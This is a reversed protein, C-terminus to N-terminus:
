WTKKEHQRNGRKQNERYMKNRLLGAPDDPVKELWVELAQDKEMQDRQDESIEVEEQVQESTKQDQMQQQQNQQESDNQQDQQNQQQNQDSESQEDQKSDNQQDSKQQDSNEQNQNDKNQNEQNQQQKLLDEIINKNYLGDQHDPQKNLLQNYLNLAEELKNMKALSTAHNYLSEISEHPDFLDSAAQYNNNKYHASAQWDKNEFLAAAKDYQQNDFAKEAQQNKTFWLDDWVSAEVHGSILSGSLLLSVPLLVSSLAVQANQRLIKLLLLLLILWILWYGDDIFYNIARNDETKGETNLQAESYRQLYELDSNDSTLTVLGANLQNAIQQLNEIELKPIIIVGNRDKLFGLNDPLNIPAGHKTGIALISLKYGSKKVLDVIPSVYQQDVGDTMWIIQGNNQMANKLLDIAKAIGKDPRSGYVPMIGASLVPVMNDITNADSTLPSIVFAEGAYVVLGITGEKTQKLLDILKYKAREIRSPKIDNANMSFSADLLVIKAQQDEFVPILQERMSPGAAAIIAIIIIFPELWIRGQKQNSSSTDGSLFRFLHSSIVSRWASSNKHKQKFYFLIALAPLLLWLIEARIFHFQSFDLPM